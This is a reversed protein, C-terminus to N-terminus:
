FTSLLAPLDSLIHPSFHVRAFHENSLSELALNVIDCLTADDGFEFLVATIFELGIFLQREPLKVVIGMVVDNYGTLKQFLEVMELTDYFGTKGENLDLADMSSRTSYVGQCAQAERYSAHDSRYGSLQGNFQVDDYNVHDPITRM